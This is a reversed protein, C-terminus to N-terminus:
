RGRSAQGVAAEQSGLHAEHAAALIYQGGHWRPRPSGWRAADQLGVLRVGSLGSQHERARQRRLTSTPTARGRTDTGEAGAEVRAIIREVRSWSRAADNAKELAAIQAETLLIGDQAM